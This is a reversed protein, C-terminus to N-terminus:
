MARAIVLACDRAGNETTILQGIAIAKACIEPRTAFRIAEALGKANFKRFPLPKSGIGLDYARQAWAFQDLAFPVIISPVGAQFGAASTGAGGHHCVAAMRPFLWTHPVNEVTIINDPLNNLGSMGGLIGRKGALTLAEIVTRGVKETDAKDFMSGFGVYVPKEGKALFAALEPSPQYEEPEKVVWYGKQHVHPNWDSPREFIHNSCSALAPHRADNHREFPMGFPKPLQGYKSKWFQKLSSESAMWLMGQLMKYSLRNIIANPIVKGYLIVSPRSNTQHMPFPSALIAPIGLKEAMFYGITLGPHYVIADSGLCADHYKEVMHIGYERLKRFSGFMKLINDAKQAEKIMQPDVGASEHDVDISYFDIWYGRTFSEFMRNTAIRVPLGLKQLEQALAIYPQVDGRAGSCLISIM